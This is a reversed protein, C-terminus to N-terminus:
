ASARCSSVSTAAATLKFKLNVSKMMQNNIWPPAYCDRGETINSLKLAGGFVGVLYHGRERRM